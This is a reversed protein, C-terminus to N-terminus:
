WIVNAQLHLFHKCKCPLGNTQYKEGGQAPCQSCATHFAQGHIAEENKSKRDRRLLISIVVLRNWSLMHLVQVVHDRYGAGVMVRRLRLLPHAALDEETLLAAVMLGHLDLLQCGESGPLLYSGTQELSGEGEGRGGCRFSEQERGLSEGQCGNGTRLAM